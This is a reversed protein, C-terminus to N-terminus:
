NTKKKKKMKCIYTSHSLPNILKSLIICCSFFLDPGFELVVTKSSIVGSSIITERCRRAQKEVGGPKNRQVEQSTERSGCRGQQGQDLHQSCVFLAQHVLAEANAM